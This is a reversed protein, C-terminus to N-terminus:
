FKLLRWLPLLELWRQIIIVFIAVSLWLYYLSIRREKVLSWRSVVSSLLHLFLYILILSIFYFLAGPWGTLFLALAGFYPEEPEFFCEGYKKNLKKASFLFLFAAALSILYPAFFRTFMYLVFYHISQYPPLLYKSPENQSWIQYQSYSQYFLLIFIAVLSLYFAVLSSRKHKNFFRGTKFRSAGFFLILIGLSFYFVM